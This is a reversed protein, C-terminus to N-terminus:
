ASEAEADVETETITAKSRLYELLKDELLRSQLRELAAGQHDARVKAIHKGTREAVKDLEQEVEAETVEMNERRAIEGLLLAGRVKREAETKMEELDNAAPDVNPNMYRQFQLFEQIMRSHQKEVMSPPLPIPNEDILKQVLADHLMARTRAEAAEELQKRVATRMAELSDYDLDKAFEDDLAPLVNEQIESVTLTLQATKGKLEERGYDEPFKVDITKPVGIELGPLGAELEPLLRGGGVRAVSKETSLDPFDTGDLSVQVSFTLSDGERAPRAPDPAVLEGNQERLRQLEQDVAADTIRTVQREVVLADLKLEDITPRIEMKATFTFSSGDAFEPADVEPIAVPDLDHEAIAKSLGQQVLANAVENRVAPGMLKQVVSRPVKGPRFGRIKASKQAKRYAADLDQSVTDWPIEVKVSILVPSLEDVQSQM